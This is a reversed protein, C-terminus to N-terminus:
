TCTACAQQQKAHSVTALFESACIVYYQPISQIINNFLSYEFYAVLKDSMIKLPDM